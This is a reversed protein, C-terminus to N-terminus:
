QEKVAPFSRALREITRQQEKIAEILLPIFGEYSVMYPELRGAPDAGGSVVEPVVELVEQAIVGLHRREDRGDKWDFYVGRLALIKSLAHEAPVVNTKERGDSLKKYDGAIQMAGDDGKMRAILKPIPAEDRCAYFDFGGAWGAGGHNVLVAEGMGGTRNWAFFLDTGAFGSPPWGNGTAPDANPLRFKVTGTV